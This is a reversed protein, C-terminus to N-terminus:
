SYKSDSDTICNIGHLGARGALIEIIKQCKKSMGDRGVLALWYQPFFWMFHTQFPQSWKRSVLEALWFQGIAFIRFM